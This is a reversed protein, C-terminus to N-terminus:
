LMLGWQEEPHHHLTGESNPEFTVISLMAKEGALIRSSLGPALQRFLGGSLDDLNHFENRQSM